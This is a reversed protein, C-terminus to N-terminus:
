LFSLVSKWWAWYCRSIMHLNYTKCMIARSNLFPKGYRSFGLEACVVSADFNDWHDDCITLFSNNSCIEVRGRSLTDKILVRESSDSITLQVYGSDCM